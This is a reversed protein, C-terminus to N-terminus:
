DDSYIAALELENDRVMGVVPCYAKMSEHGPELPTTEVVRVCNRFTGAPVTIELGSEVHEARDLAVGPALEQYYRSGLIFASDPMIIGPLAGHSGALWQGAHSVIEGEAYIDVDEGFYYVDRNPLCSAFYNRSIEKLEGDALEREQVVRALVRLRQSGMPVSLARTRETVTIWLEELEDCEGAAVCRQNHFYSVREPQLPFYANGGSSAFSCSRLPFEDTYAPEETAPAAGAVSLAVAALVLSTKPIM